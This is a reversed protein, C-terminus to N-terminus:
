MICAASGMGSTLYSLPAVILSLLRPKLQQPGNVIRSSRQYINTHHLLALPVDFDACSRYIVFSLSLFAIIISALWVSDNM